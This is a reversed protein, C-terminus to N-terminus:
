LEVCPDNMYEKIGCYWAELDEDIMSPCLMWEDDKTKITFCYAEAPEITVINKYMINGLVM